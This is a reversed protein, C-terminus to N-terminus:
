LFALSLFAMIATYVGPTLAVLIVTSYSSPYERRFVQGRWAFVVAATLIVLPFLVFYFLAYQDFWSSSEDPGHITGLWGLLGM